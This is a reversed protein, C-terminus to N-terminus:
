GDEERRLPQKTGRRTEIATRRERETRKLIEIELMTKAYEARGKRWHTYILVSSLVIGTLTALKGIEPPIANLVTAIGNGITATAVTIAVKANGAVENLNM